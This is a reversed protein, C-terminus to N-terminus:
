PTIKAELEKRAKEFEVEFEKYAQQKDWPLDGLCYPTTKDRRTALKGKVRAKVWRSLQQCADGTRQQM